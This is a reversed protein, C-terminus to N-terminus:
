FTYEPDDRVKEGLYAFYGLAGVEFIVLMVYNFLGDSNHPQHTWQLLFAPILTAVLIVTLLVLQASILPRVFPKLHRLVKLQAMADVYFWAILFGEIEFFPSLIIPARVGSSIGIDLVEHVDEDHTDNVDNEFDESTLEEPELAKKYVLIAHENTNTAGGRGDGGSKVYFEFRHDLIDIPQSEFQANLLRAIVELSSPKLVYRKELDLKELVAYIATVTNGSIIGEARYIEVISRLVLDLKEKRKNQGENMKRSLFFPLLSNLIASCIEEIDTVLNFGEQHSPPVESSKDSKESETPM